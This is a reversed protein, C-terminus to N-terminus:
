DQSRHLRAVFTQAPTIIRDQTSRLCIPITLSRGQNAPAAPHPDLSRQKALFTIVFRSPRSTETPPEGLPKRPTHKNPRHVSHPRDSITQHLHPPFPPVTRGKVSSCLRSIPKGTQLHLRTKNRSGRGLDSYGCEGEPTVGSSGGIGLASEAM